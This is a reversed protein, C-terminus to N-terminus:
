KPYRPHVGCLVGLYEHLTDKEDNRPNRTCHEIAFWGDAEMMVCSPARYLKVESDGIHIANYGRRPVGVWAPFSNKFFTPDTNPDDFVFLDNKPNCEGKEFNYYPPRGFEERYLRAKCHTSYEGDVAISYNGKLRKIADLEQQNEPLALSSEMFACVSRADERFNMDFFPIFGVCYEKTFNNKATPTRKFLLFDKPCLASGETFFILPFILLLIM